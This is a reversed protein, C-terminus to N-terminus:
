SHLALFSSPSSATAPQPGRRDVFQHGPLDEQAQFRRGHFQAQPGDLVHVPVPVAETAVPLLAQLPRAVSAWCASRCYLATSGPFRKTARPRSCRHSSANCFCSSELLFM